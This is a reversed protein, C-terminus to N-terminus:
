PYFKCLDKHKSWLRKPLLLNHIYRCTGNSYSKLFIKFMAMKSFKPTINPCISFFETYFETIKHLTM